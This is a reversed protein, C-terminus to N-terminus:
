IRKMKANDLTTKFLKANKVKRYIYETPKSGFGGGGRSLKFTGYNFLLGLLSQSTRYYANDDFWFYESKFDKTMLIGKDTIIFESEFFELIPLLFLTKISLLKMWHYGGEYLIKKYRDYSREDQERLIILANDSAM